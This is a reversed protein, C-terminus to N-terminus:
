ENSTVYYQEMYFDLREAIRFAYTKNLPVDRGKKKRCMDRSLGSRRLPVRQSICVLRSMATTGSISVVVSLRTVATNVM